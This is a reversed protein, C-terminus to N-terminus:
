LCEKKDGEEQAASPNKSDQQAQDIAPISPPRTNALHWM